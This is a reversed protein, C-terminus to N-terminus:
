DKREKEGTRTRKEKKVKAEKGGKIPPASHAEVIHSRTTVVKIKKFDRSDIKLLFDHGAM